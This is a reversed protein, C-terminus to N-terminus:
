HRRLPPVLIINAKNIVIRAKTPDIEKFVFRIHFLYEIRKLSMNLTKQVGLDLRKLGVPTTFVMTQMPVKLVGAYNMTDRAGM